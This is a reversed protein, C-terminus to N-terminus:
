SAILEEFPLTKIFDSLREAERRTLNTPLNFEIKLDARLPYSVNQMASDVTDGNSKPETVNWRFRSPHRHRGVIFKGFGLEELKRFFKVFDWRTKNHLGRKQCRDFFEDVETEGGTQQEGKLASFVIKSTKEDDFFRTIGTILNQM